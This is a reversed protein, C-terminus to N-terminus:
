KGALSVTLADFAVWRGDAPHIPEGAPTSLMAELVVLGTGNHRTIDAFLCFASQYRANTSMNGAPQGNIHFRLVTDPKQDSNIMGEIRVKGADSDAQAFHLALRAYAQKFHFQESHEDMGLGEHAWVVRSNHLPLKRGPSLRIRPLPLHRPETPAAVPLNESPPPTGTAETIIKEWRGTYDRWSDEPDCLRKIRAEAEALYAPDRALRLLEGGFGAPDDFVPWKDKLEGIARIANSTCVFPKQAVMTDIVKIPLGTGARIPLLVIDALEYLAILDDVRGLFTIGPIDADPYEDAINGAVIVETEEALRYPLHVNAIYWDLSTINAKHRSGVFLVIRRGLSKGTTLRRILPLCPRNGRSLARLMPTATTEHLQPRELAANGLMFPFASVGHLDGLHARTESEEHGNIFVLGDFHKANDLELEYDIPDITTEAYIAHQITRLDHTESIVPVDQLGLARILPHNQSYNILAWAPRHALLCDRLHPPVVVNRAIRSEGEVSLLDGRYPPKLGLAKEQASMSPDRGLRWRHVAGDQPLKPVTDAHGQPNYFGSDDIDLHVAHVAYGREALLRIQAEFVHSSGQGWWGNAIHLVVPRPRTERAQGALTQLHSVFAAATMEPVPDGTEPLTGSGLLQLSDCGAAAGCSLVLDLLDPAVRLSRFRRLDTPVSSLGAITIGRETDIGEAALDKRIPGVLDDSVFVTTDQLDLRDITTLDISPTVVAPNRHMAHRPLGFPLYETDLGLDAFRHALRPHPTSLTLRGSALLDRAEFRSRLLNVRDSLESLGVAGSLLAPDYLRTLHVHVHPTRAPDVTMLFQWVSELAPIDADLLCISTDATLERFDALYSLRESLVDFRHFALMRAGVLTRAKASAPSDDLIGWVPRGGRTVQRKLVQQVVCTANLGLDAAAEDLQHLPSAEFAIDTEPAPDVFYLDSM